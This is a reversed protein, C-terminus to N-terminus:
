HVGNAACDRHLLPFLKRLAADNKFVHVTNHWSSDSPPSTGSKSGKTFGIEQNVIVHCSVLVSFQVSMAYYSVM